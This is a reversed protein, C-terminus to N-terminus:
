LQALMVRTAIRKFQMPLARSSDVATSAGSVSYGRRNPRTFDSGAAAPQGPSTRICGGTGSSRPAAHSRGRPTNAGTGYATWILHYAIVSLKPPQRALCFAPTKRRGRSLSAEQDRGSGCRYPPTYRPPDIPQASVGSARKRFFNFREDARNRSTTFDSGPPATPRRTRNSRTGSGGRPAAHTAAAPDNPAKGPSRDTITADSPNRTNGFDVFFRHPKREGASEDRGSGLRPHRASQTM